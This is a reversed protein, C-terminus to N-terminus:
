FKALREFKAKFNGDASFRFNFRDPCAPELLNPSSSPPHQRPSEEVSPAPCPPKPQEREGM